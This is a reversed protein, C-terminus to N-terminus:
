FINRFDPTTTLGRFTLPLPNQAEHPHEPGKYIKCMLFCQRGWGNKPLMGVLAKEVIREPIRAQLQKFTEIKMSGPRGSHRRYLKEDFKKGTVIVKEANIVIVYDGIIRGPTFTTKHKGMLIKAIESTMRGPRMGAADVVFWNKKTRDFDEAHPMWAKQKPMQMGMKPLETERILEVKKGTPTIWPIDPIPDLQSKWAGVRRNIDSPTTKKPRKAAAWKAGKLEPRKAMSIGSLGSRSAVPISQVPVSPSFAAEPHLLSFLTALTKLSNLSDETSQVQDNSHQEANGSCALCALVFSVARM